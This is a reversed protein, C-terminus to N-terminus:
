SVEMKHTPKPVLNQSSRGDDQADERAVGARRVGPVETQPLTERVRRDAPSHLIDAAEETKPTDQEPLPTRHAEHHPLHSLPCCAASTLRLHCKVCSVFYLKFFVIGSFLGHV